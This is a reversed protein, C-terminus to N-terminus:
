WRASWCSSTTPRPIGRGLLERVRHRAVAVSEPVGRLTVTAGPSVTQRGTTM